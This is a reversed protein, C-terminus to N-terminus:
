SFDLFLVTKVHGVNIIGKLLGPNRMDGSNIFAITPANAWPSQTSSTLSQVYARMSSAVLYGLACPGKWCDSHRMEFDLNAIPTRMMKDIPEQWKKVDAEAALNPTIVDTIRIPSSSSEVKAATWSLHVVGLYEGYSKAQVIRINNVIVEPIAGDLPENGQILTHSHGGVILSIGKTKLAIEKDLELGNHSIVIIRTIGMLQLTEISRQISKILNEFKVKRLNKGGSIELTPTVAGIVGLRSGYKTLVTFPAVLRHLKPEELLRLNTSVTPFELKSIMNELTDVGLDFEHNGLAWADYKLDNMMDITKQGAYYKFILSGQWQDGSDVLYSKSFTSRLQNILTKLRPYGGFCKHQAYDNATCTEGLSNFSDFHSHIDNTHFLSIQWPKQENELPYLWSYQLHSVGNRKAVRSCIEKLKTCDTRAAQRCQSSFDECNLPGYRPGKKGPVKGLFHTLFSNRTISFDKLTGFFYFGLLLRLFRVTSEPM